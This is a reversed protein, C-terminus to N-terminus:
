GQKDILYQRALSIFYLSGCIITVGGKASMIDITKQMSKCTSIGEVHAFDEVKAARYFDFECVCIDSSITSLKQIMSSYPKDKLASFVIHVNDFHQCSAVLAEIGENNHAGDLIIFPNENIVEFRGKWLAKEIGEYLMHDSVQLQHTERLYNIIEIALSINKAQYIALTKQKIGTLQKYDFQLYPDLKIHTVPECIILESKKKSCTDEFVALCEQKTESTILAVNCKVIGAKASAIAEYTSGLYEMHDKGINTIASVLPTIINTADKEGGLGVEFIAYDVKKDIFYMTAIFMDIEFMSLGYEMWQDYHQNACTVIFKDEIFAENVRIRDHHTELYPSTFMGVKYNATQLVQSLTNTTSGKGNTGGIHICKLQDQPNKMRKMFENFSRLEITNTKRTEIRSIVESSHKFIM